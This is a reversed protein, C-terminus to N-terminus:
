GGRLNVDRWGRDADRFFGGAGGDDVSVQMGPHVAIFRRPCQLFVVALVMLRPSCACVEEDRKATHTHARTYTCYPHLLLALSFSSLSLSLSLCPLPAETHTPTCTCVRQHTYRHQKRCECRDNRSASCVICVRVGGQKGRPNEGAPGVNAGGDCVCAWVRIRM